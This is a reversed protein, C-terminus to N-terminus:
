YHLKLGADQEPFDGTSKLTEQLHGGLAGQWAGSARRKGSGLNWAAGPRADTAGIFLFKERRKELESSTVTPVAPLHFYPFGWNPGTQLKAKFTGLAM